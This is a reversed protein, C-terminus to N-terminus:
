YLNSNLYAIITKQIFSYIGEIRNCLPLITKESTFVGLSKDQEVFKPPQKITNELQYIIIDNSRLSTYANKTGQINSYCM